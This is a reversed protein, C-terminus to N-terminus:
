RVQAETHYLNSTHALKDAQETLAAIWRPDSHGLANVAIGAAFDLYEKGQVDWVKTGLGHSLVIPARGYTQSCCCLGFRCVM